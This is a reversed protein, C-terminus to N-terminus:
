PQSRPRDVRGHATVAGRDRRPRRAARVESDQGDGDEAAGTVFRSATRRRSTRSDTARSRRAAGGRDGDRRAELVVFAHPAEGWKEDRCASSRRKRSPRTACCSAKSKSRRSTRAAASSSTRSAIASRSTATRISSPPTAPTSGAAACRRAGDGRSRQLLGGHRRQRARRDRRRTQATTRARRAGDDDVVRLEGSTLARRGAAGQHGRAGGAGAADHEPRPECVTIFPSTETLGYVHTVTWGLEGEIREITAAAPPAGATLVRVGRPAGRACSPPRTPSASSCRRRPACCRSVSGRAILEFVAGSRGEAPLRADRRRRHRDLHVDLRQRSVDAADVPLPRGPTMPVHLLTGVVNMYANRHTIM